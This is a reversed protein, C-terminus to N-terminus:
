RARLVGGSFELRSRSVVGLEEEVRCIPPGNTAVREVAQREFSEPFRRHKTSAM